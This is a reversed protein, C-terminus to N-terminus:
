HKVVCTNSVISLGGTLFSLKTQMQNEKAKARKRRLLCLFRRVKSEMGLKPNQCPATRPMHM